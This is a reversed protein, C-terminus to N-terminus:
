LRYRPYLIGSTALLLCVALSLLLLLDRWRAYFPEPLATPLRSEIMTAEGLSTSAVIRGYADVVASIGTNAARVLPLGEEVSRVRAQHFHQYPGTTRGFWGDNTVNLLLGPRDSGALVAGPFVIEYCILPAFSPGFPLELHRREPGPSFGGPTLQRLGIRELLDPLPM